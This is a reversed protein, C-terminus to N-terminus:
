TFVDLLALFKCRYTSFPLSRSTRSRSLLPDFMNQRAVTLLLSCSTGPPQCWPPVRGKQEQSLRRLVYLGHCYALHRSNPWWGCPPPDCGKTAAASRTRDQYLFEDGHVRHGACVVPEDELSLTSTVSSSQGRGTGRMGSVVVSAGCRLQSRWLEMGGAM